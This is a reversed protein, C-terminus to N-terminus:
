GANVIVGFIAVLPWALVTGFVVVIAGLAVEGPSAAAWPARARLTTATQM